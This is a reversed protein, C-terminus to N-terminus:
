LIWIVFVKFAFNNRKGKSIKEFKCFSLFKLTKTIQINYTKSLHIKKQDFHKIQLKFISLSLFIWTQKSIKETFSSIIIVKCCITLFFQEIKWTSYPYVKMFIVNKKRFGKNLLFFYKNSKHMYSTLVNFKIFNSFNLTKEKAKFFNIFPKM